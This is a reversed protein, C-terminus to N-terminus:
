LVKPTLGLKQHHARLQSVEAQSLLNNYCGPCITKVGKSTTFSGKAQCQRVRDCRFCMYHLLRESKKLRLNQKTAEEDYEFHPQPDFKKLLKAARNKERNTKATHLVEVLVNPFAAVVVATAFRGMIFTALTSPIISVITLRLAFPIAGLNGSLAKALPAVYKDFNRYSGHLERIHALLADQDSQLSCKLKEVRNVIGGEWYGECIPHFYYIVYSANLISFIADIVIAPVSDDLLDHGIWFALSTAFFFAAFEISRLTWIEVKDLGHEKVFVALEFMCWLRSQCSEDWMSVFRKSRALYEPIAQICTAKEHPDDEAGGRPNLSTM